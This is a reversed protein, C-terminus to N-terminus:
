KSYYLDLGIVVSFSIEKTDDFPPRNMFPQNITNFWHWNVWVLITFVYLFVMTYKKDAFLLYNM